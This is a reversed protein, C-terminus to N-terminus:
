NGSFFSDIWEQIQSRRMKKWWYFAQKIFTQIALFLVNLPKPYSLFDGHSKNPSIGPLIWLDRRLTVEDKLLSLKFM